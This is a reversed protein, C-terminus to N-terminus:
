KKTRTKKPKAKPKSPKKTSSKKQSVPRRPPATVVDPTNELEDLVTALENLDSGMVKHFPSSMEWLNNVRRVIYYAFVKPKKVKTKVKFVM